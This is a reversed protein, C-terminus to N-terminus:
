RVRQIANSAVQATSTFLSDLLGRRRFPSRPGKFPGFVNTSSAPWVTQCKAPTIREYLEPRMLPQSRVFRTVVITSTSPAPPRTQGHGRPDHSAGVLGSPRSGTPTGSPRRRHTRCVSWLLDRGFRVHAGAPLRDPKRTCPACGRDGPVTDTRTARPRQARALAAFIQERRAVEPLALGPLIDSAGISYARLAAFVAKTGLAVRPNVLVAPLLPLDIPKLLVEGIGTMVRPVMELCVPVDAGTSLAAQRLRDDDPALANARALLRLAAAADASGGGLGAAVPLNKWLLFQGLSAGKVRRAFENAAKLVLNDSVAGVQSAGEGRVELGLEGGPSLQLRDGLRAFAVLSELDHYGDPRRGVVFLTLNVKARARDVLATGARPFKVPFSL